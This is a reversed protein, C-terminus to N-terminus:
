SVRANGTDGFTNFRFIKREDDSNECLISARAIKGGEILRTLGIFQSLKSKLNLKDGDKTVLFVSGECSDLVALFEIVDVDNLSLYSNM